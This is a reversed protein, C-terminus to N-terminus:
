LTHKIFMTHGRHEGCTNLLTKLCNCNDVASYRQETETCCKEVGWQIQCIQKRWYGFYSPQINHMWIHKSETIRHLPKGKIQCTQACVLEKKSHLEHSVKYNHPM